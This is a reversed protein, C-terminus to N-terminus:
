GRVPIEKEKAALAVDNYRALSEKITCNINSKSFGESASAFVAIEKAGAAIAAEFGQHTVVLAFLLISFSAFVHLIYYCLGDSHVYNVKINPTLVPLRVGETNRVAEM